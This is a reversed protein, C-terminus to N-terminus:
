RKRAVAFWRGFCVPSKRTFFFRLEGELVGNVCRASTPQEDHEKEKGDGRNGRDLDSELETRPPRGAPQCREVDVFRQRCPRFDSRHPACRIKPMEERAGGVELGGLLRY